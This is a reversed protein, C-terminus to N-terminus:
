GGDILNVDIKDKNKKDPYALRWNYRWCPIMHTSQNGTNMQM